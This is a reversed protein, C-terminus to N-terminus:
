HAPLILHEKYIAEAEPSALYQVLTRAAAPDKAHTAIFADIDTPPSAERPVSGVVDLDANRNGQLDSAYPGLGIESEGSTVSTGIVGGTRVFKMKPKMQEAIGLKEFMALAAVGVSGEKPDVTAASKAALLTRRVADATSIDPRPTGKKVTLAMVFGGLTTKSDAILNGSALAAPYPPLIVFVDFPEGRAAQDKTGVGTGITVKVKYGTKAEFGPIIKDFSEKTPLPTVITLETQAHGVRSIGLTFVVVALSSALFRVM